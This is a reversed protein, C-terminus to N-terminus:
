VVHDPRLVCSHAGRGDEVQFTANGIKFRQLLQDRANHLLDDDLSADPRVLHATLATETTSM